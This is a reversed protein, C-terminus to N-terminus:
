FVYYQAIQRFLERNAKEEPGRTRLKGEKLEGMRIIMDGPLNELTTGGSGKADMRYAKLDATGGPGPAQGVTLVFLIASALVLPLTLFRYQTMRGGPLRPRLGM